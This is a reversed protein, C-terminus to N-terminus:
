IRVGILCIDDVQEMNGKWSNLTVSLFEKQEKMPKQSISILLQKLQKYMFKKGKPGGFQDPLGDTLAYVVDDKKLDITHQTFSVQDKDHKGVPMKDPTLEVINGERVIWVPNNAAAYTLQVNKFDFSILSCDMGDKGGAESGDKSLRDIITKRTDNLIASPEHFHEVAKELSTVNLLSMIAGPVGHGTSDATALLFRETGNAQKIKSAWYFDGSVVDKPQFYVFYDHLNEDLVDKTALFSRQIREAYNISDTIEKHKEEVIEKQEEIVKKQQNTIRFRNVMFIAFLAVLLLGGYLSYRQIKEQKLQANTIKKDAEVKVSDAAAKKDFNFKLEQEVSARTNEVSQLSDRFTIFLKYHKLALAPKNSEAYMESLVSHATQIEYNANIETAVKLSQLAYKESLAYNKKQKYFYSLNGSSVAEGQKNGNTTCLDLAKLQYEIAKDIKGQKELVLSLNVFIFVKARIDKLVTHISDSKLYYSVAKEYQRNALATDKKNAANEGQQMYSIGLNTYQAGVGKLDGAEKYKEISKLYFGIAKDFQEQLNYIIGISSLAIGQIRIEKEREAMKLTMFGYEMAKAYNGTSRYIDIINSMHRAVGSFNEQFEDEKMAKLHSELAKERNGTNMYALGINGLMVSLNKNGTRSLDIGKNLYAICKEYNFRHLEVMGLNSYARIISSSDKIELALKLSESYFEVSKDGQGIIKFLFAKGSLSRIQLKKAYSIDVKNKKLPIQKLAIALAEDFIGMAKEYDGIKIYYNGTEILATGRRVEDKRQVSIATAKKFFYLGTDPNSEMYISGTKILANFRTTDHMTTTLAKQLSDLIHLNKKSQAFLSFSCILLVTIYSLTKM